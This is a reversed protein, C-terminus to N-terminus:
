PLQSKSDSCGGATTEHISMIKEVIGAGPPFWATMANKACDDECFAKLVEVWGSDRIPWVPNLPFVFGDRVRDLLFSRLQQENKYDWPKEPFENWVVLYEKDLEQPFYYNFCEAGHRVAGNSSTEAVVDNIFGYSTPDGFGFQPIKPHSSESQLMEIWRQTWSSARPTELIKKTRDLCWSILQAQDACLPEYAMGKSGVLFTDFDQVVPKVLKEAYAMLLGRPNLANSEDHQYLVVKPTSSFPDRNRASQLNMDMFKPKSVLGTEWGTMPSIDQRMIYVERLLPEPMDLGFVDPAYDDVTEVKREAIDFDESPHQLASILATLAEERCAPNKYYVNVRADPPSKSILKKHENDSIAVFPVYGALTGETASEGKINLYKGVAMGNSMKEIAIPSTPRYVAFWTTEGMLSDPEFGRLRLSGCPGRADGNAYFDALVQRPDTRDVTSSSM